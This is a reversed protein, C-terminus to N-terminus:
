RNSAASHKSTEDGHPCESGEGVAGHQRENDQPGTKVHSETAGNGAQQKQSLGYPFQDASQRAPHESVPQSMPPHQEYRRNAHGGSVAAQEGYALRREGDHCEEYGSQEFRSKVRSNSGEDGVQAGSGFEM